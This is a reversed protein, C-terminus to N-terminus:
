RRFRHQKVLQLNGRLAYRVYSTFSVIIHFIILVMSSYKNLINEHPIFPDETNGVMIEVLDLEELMEETDNANEKEENEKDKRAEKKNAADQELRALEAQLVGRHQLLLKLQLHFM